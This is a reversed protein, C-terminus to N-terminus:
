PRGVVEVFVEAADSRGTADTVTVAAFGGGAPTWSANGRRDSSVPAGNVFWLFPVRGGDVRLPVPEPAGGDWALRLRTGDVPFALEPGRANPRRDLRALYAPPPLDGMARVAEPRRAAASTDGPFLDFLSLLIPAATEIGVCGTCPGGDPRGVWVGATHEATFGIAWADRYGYSTGTKFAVPPVARHQLFGRARPAGRLIDAVYWAAFPAMLPQAPGAGLGTDPDTDPDSASSSGANINSDRATHSHSSVGSGEGPHKILVQAPGSVSVSDAGTGLRAVLPATRGGRAIGAYAAVLHELTIGTGGLALPLSPRDLDTPHVLPIGAERLATDFQVPGLRALVTVAPVNLSWALADRARVPGRFGGDFNVPRYGGFNRPRDEIWTDPHLLRRDFALGYILPKLTSGPSRAATTMDVMGDRAEDFYDLAGVHAVVELTANEVVVVAVSARPDAAPPHLALQRELAAQLGADITTRVVATGSGRAALRETLHPALFPLGRRGAPVEAAMAREAEAPDLVGREAARALVRNRAARAAGPHRDPRLREPSQPLAVLLAAEAPTLRAPEKGFWALSAARAGELNGGFSALTLYLSLVGEKGLEHELQLARGMEILKAALTRPRPELLRAAQMSLTSAGSVVRGAAVAQGMARLVALPDVGPHHPFRKDEWAILMRLYLPDVGDPGVSFRWKDDGSLFARLVTGDRAEVTRTVDMARSLDPPFVWDALGAVALGATGASLAVRWNRRRARGIARGM